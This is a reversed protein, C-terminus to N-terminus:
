LELFFFFDQELVNIWSVILLSDERILITGVAGVRQHM